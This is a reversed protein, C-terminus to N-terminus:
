AFAEDREAIRAQQWDRIEREVWGVRYAGLKVQKPFEGKQIAEYISSPPLSTIDRVQRLRLFRETM